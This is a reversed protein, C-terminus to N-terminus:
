YFCNSPYAVVTAGPMCYFQLIPPLTTMHEIEWKKLLIQIMFVNEPECGSADTASWNALSQQKNKKKKFFSSYSM